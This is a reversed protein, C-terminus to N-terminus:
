TGDLKGDHPISPVSLSPHVGGLEGSHESGVAVEADTHSDLYGQSVERGDVDAEAEAQGGSDGGHAPVPEPGDPQPPQDTSSVPEGAIDAKDGEGDYSEGAVAHPGPQPPLSTLEVREGGHNAGTGDPERKRGALLHKLKKKIKSFLDRLYGM